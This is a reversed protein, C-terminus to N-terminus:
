LYEWQRDSFPSLFKGRGSLFDVLQGRLSIRFGSRLNSTLLKVAADFRNPAERRRWKRLAVVPVGAKMAIDKERVREAVLAAAKKARGIRRKEAVRAAFWAEYAAIVEPGADVSSGMAPYSWGRTTAFMIEEASGTEPNWVTMYFDSDDYYNAERESICLGVHTNWLCIGGSREREKPTNYNGDIPCYAGERFDIMSASSFNVIPM